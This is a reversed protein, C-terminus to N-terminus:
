EIPNYRRSAQRQAEPLQDNALWGKEMLLGVAGSRTVRSAHQGERAKEAPRKGRGPAASGGTPSLPRQSPRTTDARSMKTDPGTAAKGNLRTYARKVVDSFTDTSKGASMEAAFTALLITNREQRQRPDHVQALEAQIRPRMARAYEVSGLEQEMVVEANRDAQSQYASGRMALGLLKNLFALPLGAETALDEIEEATAFDPLSAVQRSEQANSVQTGQRRAETRQSDDPTGLPNQADDEADDEDQTEVEDEDEQAEGDDEYFNTEYENPDYAENGLATGSPAQREESSQLSTTEPM